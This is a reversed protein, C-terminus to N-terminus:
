PPTGRYADISYSVEGRVLALESAVPELAAGTPCAGHKAQAELGALLAALSSAGVLGAVGRLTHSAAIFAAVSQRPGPQAAQQMRALMAPTTDLFTQSLSRFLALDNGSAAFLAAPEISLYPGSM